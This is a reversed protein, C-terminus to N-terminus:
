GCCICLPADLACGSCSRLVARKRKDVLELRYQAAGEVNKLRQDAEPVVALLLFGARQQQALEASDTSAVADPPQTM